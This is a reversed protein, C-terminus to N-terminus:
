DEEHFLWHGAMPKNHEHQRDYEMLGIYAAVVALVAGMCLLDPIMSM